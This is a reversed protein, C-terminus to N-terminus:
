MTDIITDEKYRCAYKDIHFGNNPNVLSKM